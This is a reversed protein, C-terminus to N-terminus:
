ALLEILRTKLEVDKFEAIGVMAKDQWPLDDWAAKILHPMSDELATLFFPVSGKKM